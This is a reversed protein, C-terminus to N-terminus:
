KEKETGNKLTISIVGNSGRVGYIAASSGKLVKIEKVELPVVFDISNVVNGNVVYLPESGGFFSHGQQIQISRGSVVVGSVEGRIMQYIDTYTNMKKARAKAAKNGSDSVKSESIGNLTLNITTQGKILTDCFGYEASSVKLKSATPSVKIKYSGDFKSRFSTKVGDIYIEADDVPKKDQSLVFGSITISKVSKTDNNQGTATYSICLVSIIIIFIKLKM